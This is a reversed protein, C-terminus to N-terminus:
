HGKGKRERSVVPIPWQERNGLDGRECHVRYAPEEM